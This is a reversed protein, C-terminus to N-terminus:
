ASGSIVGYDLHHRGRNFVVLNSGAHYGDDLCKGIIEFPMGMKMDENGPATPLAITLPDGNGVYISVLCLEQKTM